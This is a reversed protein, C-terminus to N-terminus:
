TQFDADEAKATLKFIRGSLERNTLGKKQNKEDKEEKQISVAIKCLLLAMTKHMKVM